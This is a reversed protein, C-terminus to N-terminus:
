ESFVLRTADYYIWDLCISVVKDGEALKRFSIPGNRGAGGYNQCTSM